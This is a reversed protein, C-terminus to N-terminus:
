STARLVGMRNAMRVELGIQSLLHVTFYDNGNSVQGSSAGNPGMMGVEYAHIFKRSVGNLEKHKLKLLSQGSSDTGFDLWLSFDAYNVISGSATASPLIASDDFLEYYVFHITKGMFKYTQFDLGVTNAGFSGYAIAGNIAYDKLARQVNKLFRISCLVTIENSVGQKALSEIHDQIDNESVGVTSAYGTIVGENLAYELIGKTVKAGTTQLKGFLILVERDRAFEKMHIDEVATFWPSAYPKEIWIKNTFEDGSVAFSRRLTTLVGYEEVPLFLRGSPASSAEGFPGAFAFGFTMTDAIQSAGVTWNGGGIKQVTVKQKNSLVSSVTVATVQALVGSQLRITDNVVLFGLNGTASNYDFETIEFTITSSGGAGVSSVTGGFRTRNMISWSWTDQAVGESAGLRDMLSTLYYQPYKFSLFTSHEPKHLGSQFVYGQLIPQRVSTGGVLPPTPLGAPM